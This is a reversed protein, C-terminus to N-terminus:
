DSIDSYKSEHLFILTQDELIKIINGNGVKSIYTAYFPVYEEPGPKNM